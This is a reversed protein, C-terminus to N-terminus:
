VGCGLRWTYVSKRSTNTAVKCEVDARMGMEQLNLNTEKSIKDRTQQASSRNYFHTCIIQLTSSHICRFLNIPLLKMKIEFHCLCIFHKDDKHQANTACIVVLINLIFSYRFACSEELTFIDMLLYVGYSFCSM